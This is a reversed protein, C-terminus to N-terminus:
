SHTQDEGFASILEPFHVKYLFLFLNYTISFVICQTGHSMRRIEKKRLLNFIAKKAANIWNVYIIRKEWCIIDSPIAESYMLTNLYYHMGDVLKWIEITTTSREIICHYFFFGKIKFYCSQTLLVRVIVYKTGLIIHKFKKFDM